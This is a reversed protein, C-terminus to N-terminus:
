LLRYDPSPVSDPHNMREIHHSPPMANKGFAFHFTGKVLQGSSDLAAWEVVYYNAPPLPPLSQTYHKSEGERYRFGIDIPEKGQSPEKLALKVLRVSSEFQLMISDPAMAMVQDHHPMTAVFGEGTNIVGHSGHQAFSAASFLASSLALLCAAARPHSVASVIRTIFTIMFM